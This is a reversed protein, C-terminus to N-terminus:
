EHGRGRTDDPDRRHGRHGPVQAARRDSAPHSRLGATSPSDPLEARERESNAIRSSQVFKWLRVVESDVLPPDCMETNRARMRLLAEEGLIGHATLRSMTWALLAEHRGGPEVREGDGPVRRHDSEGGLIRTVSDPVPALEAVAPVRGDYPIGCPHVSPPAIVYGGAGRLEVGQVTTKRTRLEGRFYVQAGRVGPLSNPYEDDREPAEGTRILPYRELGLEPIVERPDAGHKSDIDLVDIASQECAIAINADPHRDWWRLIQREDRVADHWGNETLPNKGRARCPFVYHGGGALAVAAQEFRSGASM